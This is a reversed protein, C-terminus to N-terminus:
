EKTTATDASNTPKKQASKKTAKVVYWRQSEYMAVAAPAVDITQNSDPHRMRPM